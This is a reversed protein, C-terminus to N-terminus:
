QQRPCRREGQGACVCAAAQVAGSNRWPMSNIFACSNAARNITGPMATAVSLPPTEPPPERTPAARCIGGRGDPNAAHDM